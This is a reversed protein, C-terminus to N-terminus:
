GLEWDLPARSLRDGSGGQIGLARAAAHDAAQAFELSDAPPGGNVTRIQWEDASSLGCEIIEDEAVEDGPTVSHGGVRLRVRRDYDAISRRLPREQRPSQVPHHSVMAPLLRAIQLIALQLDGGELEQTTEPPVATIAAEPTIPGQYECFLDLEINSARALRVAASTVAAFFQRYENVRPRGSPSFRHNEIEDKFSIVLEVRMKRQADLPRRHFRQILANEAARQWFYDPVDSLYLHEMPALRSPDDPLGSPGRRAFEGWNTITDMMANADEHRGPIPSRNQPAGPPTTTASLFPDARLVDSNFELISALGLDRLPDRSTEALKRLQAGGQWTWTRLRRLSTETRKGRDRARVVRALDRVLSIPFPPYGTPGDKPSTVLPRWRVRLWEYWEDASEIEQQRDGRRSTESAAHLLDWLIPGPITCGEAQLTEIVPLTRALQRQEAHPSPRFSTFNLDSQKM